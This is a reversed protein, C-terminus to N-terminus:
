ETRERWRDRCSRDCFSRIQVAGDDTRTTAAPHWEDTEVPDGCTACTAAANETPTDPDPEVATM